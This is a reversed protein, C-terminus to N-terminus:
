IFHKHIEVIWFLLNKMKWTLSLHKQSNVITKAMIKDKQKQVKIKQIEKLFLQHILEKEKKPNNVMIKIEMKKKM